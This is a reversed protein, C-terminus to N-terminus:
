FFGGIKSTAMPIYDDYDIVAGWFRCASSNSGGSRTYRADITDTTNMTFTNTSDEITVNGFTNAAEAVSMGSSSGNKFYAFTIGSTTLQGHAATNYTLRKVTCNELLKVSSNNPNAEVPVGSFAMIRTGNLGTGLSSTQATIAYQVESTPFALEFTVKNITISGTTGGITIGFNGTNGSVYDNTSTSTFKGTTSAPITAGAVTCTNNRTNASVYVERNQARMPVRVLWGLANTSAVIIQGFACNVSGASSFALSSVSSTQVIMAGLNDAYVGINAFRSAGGTGRDVKICVNDGVVVSDTNSADEFYGTAGAPVTITQNGDAGNVRFTITTDASHTNAAVNVYMNSYTRPRWCRSEVEAEATANRVSGQTCPNYSTAPGAVSGSNTANHITRVSM